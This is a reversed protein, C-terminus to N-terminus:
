WRSCDSGGIYGIGNFWSRIDVDAQACLGPNLYFYFERLAGLNTFSTPIIGMLQNDDVLLSQLNSLNGLRAPIAGTLRNHRLDLRELFSLNGLQTPISGTLRNLPSGAVSPLLPQGSPDPHHGDAPQM